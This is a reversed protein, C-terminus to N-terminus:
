ICIGNEHINNIQTHQSTVNMTVGGGLTTFVATAEHWADNVTHHQWGLKGCM